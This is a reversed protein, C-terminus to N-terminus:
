VWDEAGAGARGEEVAVREFGEVVAEQGGDGPDGGVPVLEGGEGAEGDGREVFGFGSGVSQGGAVGVQVDYGRGAVLGVGGVEEAQGGAFEVAEGALV